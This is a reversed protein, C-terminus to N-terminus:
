RGGIRRDVKMKWWWARLYQRGCALDSLKSFAGQPFCTEQGYHRAFSQILDRHRHFFQVWGTANSPLDSRLVAILRDVTRGLSPSEDGIFEQLCCLHEIIRSAKRRDLWGRKGRLAFHAILSFYSLAHNANHHAQMSQLRPTIQIEEPIIRILGEAEEKPYTKNPEYKYIKIRYNVDKITEAM